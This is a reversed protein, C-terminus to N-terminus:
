ILIKKPKIRDQYKEVLKMYKGTKKNLYKTPSPMKFENLPTSKKAPVKVSSSEASVFKTSSSKAPPQKNSSSASVFKTSSSKAPAKVSSEASVFKSSSKAPPQKNSSSASVFKTSSSKAPAKVSSSASVFKTSSSKSAQKNSNSASVFKTSSSKRAPAKKVKPEKYCCKVNHKNNKLLPHNNPCNDNVPRRPKPCSATKGEKNENNDKYYNCANKKIDIINLRYREKCTTLPLNLKKCQPLYQIYPNPKVCKKTRLSYVCSPDKCDNM